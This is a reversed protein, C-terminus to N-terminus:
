NPLCVRIGDSRPLIQFLFSQLSNYNMWIISYEHYVKLTQIQIVNGSIGPTGGIDMILIWASVSVVRMSRWMSEGDM